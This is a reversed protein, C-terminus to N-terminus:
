RHELQRPGRFQGGQTTAPHPASVAFAFLLLFRQIPLGRNSARKLGTRRIPPPAYPAISPRM